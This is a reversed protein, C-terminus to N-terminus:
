ASSCEARRPGLERRRQDQASGLRRARPALLALWSDVRVCAEPRVCRPCRRASQSRKGSAIALLKIRCGEDACRRPSRRSAWDLEGNAISVYMQSQDQFARPADDDPGTLSTRAGLTPPSGVYPAGYTIRGPNARAAMILAAVTAYPGDSKVAVFFPTHYIMGGARLRGATTPLKKYLAPNIAVHANSV